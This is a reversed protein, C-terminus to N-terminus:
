AYTDVRTGLIKKPEKQEKSEEIKERSFAAYREIQRDPRTVAPQMPIKTDQQPALVTNRQRAEQMRRSLELWSNTKDVSHLGM